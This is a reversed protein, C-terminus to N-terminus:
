ASALQYDPHVGRARWYDTLGVGECLPLFRADARMAACPPTFLYQTNIRWTAENLDSKRVKGNPVIAGRSLLLGDAVEFAADTEGLASLIMLTEAAFGGTARAARFCAERAKAITKASRQDFAALAARWLAASDADGVMEPNRDLMAQAARPRDTLAFIAFRIWWPWPNTPYLAVVQDIVKDAQSVRGAIWLKLARKTLYDFSFPDLAIARENLTWSERNLGAAQTLLVLEGIAPLNASDIGIIDRLRRDRAAWDLTSGQLEFMALLAYPEKPDIALARHAADQADKGAPEAIKPDAAVTDISRLYALLGWAKASEPRLSVAERLDRVTREDASQKRIAQEAGALLADFRRQPQAELFWWGGVGALAMAGLAGGALERRTLKRPGRSSGGVGDDGVPEPIAGTLRYGTRPITEIEFSGGAVDAAIKRVAGIARNLSDDGVYVGGWCRQFLTERTVVHGASDALVVLVQMVRPEVDAVGGPGAITRSSPSVVALGLTFDPRAALEATTLFGDSSVRVADNM